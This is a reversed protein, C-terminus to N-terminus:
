LVLRFFQVVYVCWVQVCVCVCARVSVLDFNLITIVHKGESKKAILAVFESM